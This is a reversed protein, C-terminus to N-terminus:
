ISKTRRAPTHGVDANYNAPKIPPLQSTTPKVSKTRVDLMIKEKSSLCSKANCCKSKRVCANSKRVYGFKCQCTEVCEDECAEGAYLLQFCSPEFCNCNSTQHKGCVGSRHEISVIDDLRVHVLCLALLLLKLWISAM